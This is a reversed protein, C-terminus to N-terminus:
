GAARHPERLDEYAVAQNRGNRKAAYLAQDARDILARADGGDLPFTAMGLSLTCSFPGKDSQFSLRQVEQRVREALQRGGARDTMELVVAFEEGGYRAALDIKRVCAQVVRAVRRLVQDGAPHGYTDNIRKFHDIDSLLLTLAGGQRGARLLMDDFREQFTRRNTLGTLGDTTAMAEMAQYMRANELSVAVQNCLVGLMERQERQFLGPRAGALVLTGKAEGACILPLVLLSDTGRLRAQDDFIPVPTKDAHLAGDPPMVHRNKIAMAVLGANDPFSLGPLPATLGADGGTAAAVTHRRTERDYTTIAGLDFDSIERAALFVTEHVQEPTLARNLRESARYLREHEYRSREVAAFVRESQLSRLIQEAAGILLAEDERTFPVPAQGGEAFRRDACLVGVVREGECLPVGLFSGIRAAAGAPYYPLHGPKPLTLNLLGRRKVVTGPAGADAPLEEGEQLLPVDGAAVKMRMRGDDLWFLVCGSLRLSRLLLKLTTKLSDHIVVVAGRALIGEEEARERRAKASAAGGHGRMRSAMPPAGQLRFEAAERQLRTLEGGVRVAHDRRQRFLESRLFLHHLAAFLLIFAGHILLRAPEVLLRGDGVLLLAEGCLTLLVLPLAVQPRHHSSLFAVLAYVLPHLPSRAGGLGQLLAFTALVLAGASELHLLDRRWGGQAPACLRERMKYLLLATIGLLLLAPGLRAQPLLLGRMAGSGLLVFGATLLVGAGGLRVARGLLALPRRLRRPVRLVLM